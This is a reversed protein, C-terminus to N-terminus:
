RISDSGRGMDRSRSGRKCCSGKWSGEPHRVGRGLPFEGVRFRPIGAACWTGRVTDETPREAPRETTVTAVM